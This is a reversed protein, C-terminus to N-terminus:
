VCFLAIRPIIKILKQILGNYWDINSINSIDLLTQHMTIHQSTGLKFCIIFSAIKLNYKLFYYIHDCIANQANQKFISM